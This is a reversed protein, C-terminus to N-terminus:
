GFIREGLVATCVFVTLSSISEISRGPAFLELRASVEVSEGNNLSVSIQDPGKKVNINSAADNFAKEWWHNNFEDARNHGLGHTDFKLSAKIPKVIGDSNRGIGEGVIVIVSVSSSFCAEKCDVLM